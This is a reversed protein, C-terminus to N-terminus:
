ESQKSTSHVTGRGSLWKRYADPDTLAPRERLRRAIDPLPQIAWERLESNERKLVEIQQERQSLSQRLRDQQTRLLTQAGREQNLVDRLTSMAELTRGVEDRAIHADKMAIDTNKDAARVRLEQSWILLALAGLLSIGLLSQYLINM